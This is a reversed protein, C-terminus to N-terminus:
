VCSEKQTDSRRIIHEVASAALLLRHTRQLHRLFLADRNSKTNGKMRLKRGEQEETRRRLLRVHHDVQHLRQVLLGLRLLHEHVRHVHNALADLLQRGLGVGGGAGSKRLQLSQRAVHRHRHVARTEENRISVGDVGMDYALFQLRVLLTTTDKVVSVIPDIAGEEVRMDVLLGDARLRHRLSLKRTFKEISRHKSGRAIRDVIQAVIELQRLKLNVIPELIFAIAITAAVIRGSKVSKFIRIDNDYLQTHKNHTLKAPNGRFSYEKQVINKDKQTNM